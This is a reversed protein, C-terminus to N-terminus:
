KKRLKQHFVDKVFKMASKDVIVAGGKPLELLEGNLYSQAIVELTEVAEMNVSTKSITTYDNIDNLRQKITSIFIRAKRVKNKDM